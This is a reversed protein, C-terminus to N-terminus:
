FCSTMEPVSFYSIHIVDNKRLKSLLIFALSSGLGIFLLSEKKPPPTDGVKEMNGQKMGAKTLLATRLYFEHVGSCSLEYKSIGTLDFTLIYGLGDKRSNTYKFM